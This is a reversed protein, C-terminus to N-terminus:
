NSWTSGSTNIKAFATLYSAFESAQDVINPNYSSADGPPALSNTLNGFVLSFLPLAAGAAMSFFSAIVMMIREGTTSFSFISFYSITPVKEKYKLNDKQDKQTLSM